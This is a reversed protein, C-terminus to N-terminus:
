MVVLVAPVVTVKFCVVVTVLVNLGTSVAVVVKMMVLVVEVRM